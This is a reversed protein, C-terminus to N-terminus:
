NNRYKKFIQKLGITLSMVLISITSPEPVSTLRVVWAEQLGDPNIGHGVITFGDASVGTADTLTWGSLDLEYDDQLVNKLNRMGHFSDWIFAETVWGYGFHGATVSYGVIVRGNESVDNAWSYFDGGPLDGIGIMVNDEWRFAEKGSSICNPSPSLGVIVSGDPSIANARSGYSGPGSLFGLGTLVGNDWLFAEGNYAHGVIRNGDSSIGHAEIAYQGNPLTGLTIINGGQWYTALRYTQGGIDDKGYGIVRTGDGSVGEARSGFVGGPLDGLPTIVGNCWKFAEAGLMNNSVGYGVIISCDTSVGLASSFNPSGHFDGLGTMTGNQWRFAQGYVSQNQVIWTEGVVTSGDDSVAYAASLAYPTGDHGASLRGLHQFSTADVKAVTFLVIFLSFVFCLVNKM